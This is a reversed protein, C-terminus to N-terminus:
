EAREVRCSGRVFPTADVDDFTTVHPSRQGARPCTPQLPAVSVHCQADNTAARIWRRHQRGEQHPVTRALALALPIIGGTIGGTIGRSDTDLPPPASSLAIASAVDERTIRGGREQEKSQKWTLVQM